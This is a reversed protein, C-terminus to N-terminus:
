GTPFVLGIKNCMCGWFLFNFITYLPLFLHFSVDCADHGESGACISTDPLAYTPGFKDKLAKECQAQEWLPVQVEKL